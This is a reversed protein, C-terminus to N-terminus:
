FSSTAGRLNLVFKQAKLSYQEETKAGVKAGHKSFNMSLKMEIQRLYLM